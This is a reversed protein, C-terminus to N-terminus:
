RDAEFPECLRHRDPGPPTSSAFAWEPIKGLLAEGIPSEGLFKRVNERTNAPENFMEWIRRFKTGFGELAAARENAIRNLEKVSDLAENAWQIAEKPVNAKKSYHDLLARLDSEYQQLLQAREAAPRGMIDLVFERHAVQAQRRMLKVANEVFASEGGAAAMVRGEAAKLDNLANQSATVARDYAEIDAPSWDRGKLRRLLNVRQEAAEAYTIKARDLTACDRMFQLDTESFFERWPLKAGDMANIFVNNARAVQKAVKTRQELTTTAEAVESVHCTFDIVGAAAQGTTYRTGSLWVKWVEGLRPDDMLIRRAEDPTIGERLRGNEFLEPHLKNLLRTQTEAFLAGPTATINIPQGTAPDILYLRTMSQRIAWQKGASTVYM